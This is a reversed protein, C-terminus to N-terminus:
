RIQARQKGERQAKLRFARLVATEREEKEKKQERSAVRQNQEGFERTNEIVVKFKFNRLIQGTNVLDLMRDKM